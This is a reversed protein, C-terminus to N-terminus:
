NSIKVSHIEFFWDFSIVHECLVQSPWVVVHLFCSCHSYTCRSDIPLNLEALNVEPKVKPEMVKWWCAYITFICKLSLWTHTVIISKDWKVWSGGANIFSVCFVTPKFAQIVQRDTSCTIYKALDILTEPVLVVPIRCMSRSLAYIWNLILHNKFKKRVTFKITVIVEWATSFTRPQIMWVSKISSTYYQVVWVTHTM